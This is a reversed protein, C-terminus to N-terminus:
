NLIKHRIESRQGGREVQLILLSETALSDWVNKFQEPREISQGNIRLVTDGPRLGAPGAQAAEFVRLLRWGVFRGREIMPELQVQQLFRGVGASLVALLVPRPIDQGDIVSPLKGDWGAKQPLADAAGPEPGPAPPLDTPQATAGPAPLAPEAGADPTAAAAPAPARAPPKPKPAPVQASGGGCAALFGLSLSLRRLRTSISPQM